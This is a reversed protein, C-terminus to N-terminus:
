NATHWARLVEEAQKGAFFQDKAEPPVGDASLLSWAIGAFWPTGSFARFAAEFLAAQATESAAGRAESFNAASQTAVSAYALDAMRVEVVLQAPQIRQHNRGTLRRAGINGVRDKTIEIDRRRIRIHPIPRQELTRRM